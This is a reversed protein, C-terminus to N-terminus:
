LSWRSWQLPKVRQMPGIAPVGLQPEPLGQRMREWVRSIGADDLTSGARWYPAIEVGPDTLLVAAAGQRVKRAVQEPSRFIAHAIFLGAHRSGVRMGFHNGVHVGALVHGRVAVKGPVAPTSDMVFETEPWEHPVASIPVMHHFAASVIGADPFEVAIRRLHDAVSDARAFWFEDADFPIVWDAGARSAARVLRSMKEGQYYAPERDQAVHIRPDGSARERLRELTGDASGNDSVLLQDVGQGLLHDLTAEIIDVEDRVMTVGWVEGPRRRRLPLRPLAIGRYAAWAKRRVTAERHERIFWGLQGVELRVRRAIADGRMPM